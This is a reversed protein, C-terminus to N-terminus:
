LVPGTRGRRVDMDSNEMNPKNKLQSYPVQAKWINTIIYWFAMGYSL